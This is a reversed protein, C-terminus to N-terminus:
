WVEKEIGDYTASIHDRTKWDDRRSDIRSGDNDLCSYLGDVIHIWRDGEGDILERPHGTTNPTYNDLVWGAIRRYRQGPVIENISNFRSEEPFEFGRNYLELALTDIPDEKVPPLWVIELDGDPTYNGDRWTLVLTRVRPTGRADIVVTADPLDRASAVPVKDGVKFM